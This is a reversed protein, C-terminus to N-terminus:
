RHQAVADHCPRRESVQQEILEVGIYGLYTAKKMLKEKEKRSKKWEDQCKSMRYAPRAM